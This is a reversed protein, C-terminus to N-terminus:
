TTAFTVTVSDQVQQTGPEIPVTSGAAVDAKQQFPVPASAGGETIAVIPGLTVGAATALAEGRAKADAVAAALAKRELAQENSLTLSPGDVSDAGATVAADIVEGAKAISPLTASVGSSANYGLVTQGDDSLRQSLSVQQTQIDKAAIGAQKLAAIVRQAAEGNASLAGSATKASTQVGFSFAIKDPVAEVSGLGQVTIQHATPTDSRANSTRTVAVTVALAIVLTAMIALRARTM